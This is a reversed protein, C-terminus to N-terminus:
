EREDLECRGTIAISSHAVRRACGNSKVMGNHRLRGCRYSVEEVDVVHTKHMRMHRRLYDIVKFRASCKECKFKREDSHTMEHRREASLLKFTKHCRSCEYPRVSSHVVLHQNLKNHTAFRANCHDCEFDLEGRHIKEHIKLYGRSTFPKDCFSCMHPGRYEDRVVGLHM